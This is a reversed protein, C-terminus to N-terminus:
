RRSRFYPSVYTGDRRFYGSVAETRPLGTVESIAGYGGGGGYYPATSPVPTIPSTIPIESASSGSPNVGASASGSSQSAIVTPAYSGVGIQGASGDQFTVQALANGPSYTIFRAVGIRGNSCKVPVTLHREGASFSYDSTCTVNGSGSLRIAGRDGQETITGVLVTGESTRLAATGAKHTSVCAAM